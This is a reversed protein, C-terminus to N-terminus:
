SGVSGAEARATAGRLRWGFWVAYYFCLLVLAVIRFTTPIDLQGAIWGSVPPGLMTGLDMGGSFVAAAMGAQGEGRKQAEAIQATTTVRILGRAAGLVVFVVVLLAENTTLSMVIMALATAVTLVHNVPEMPVYRFLAAAAFRSGTAVLSGLSKLNGVTSLAIGVGLAYIPFFTHYTDSCFAVYFNLLTALWVVAPLSALSRLGRSSGTASGAQGAREAPQTERPPVLLLSLAAGVLAVLGSAVFAEGHGFWEISRAGLSAGLAYGLSMAAAYWAM